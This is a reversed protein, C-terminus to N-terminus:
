EQSTERRSEGKKFSRYTATSKKGEELVRVCEERGKKKGQSIGAEKQLFLKEQFSDRRPILDGEELGCFTHYGVKLTEKKEV